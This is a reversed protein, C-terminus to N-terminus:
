NKGPKYNAGLTYVFAFGRDLSCVYNRKEKKRFNLHWLTESIQMEPLVFKGGGNRRKIMEGRRTPTTPFNTKSPPNNLRSRMKCIKVYVFEPHKLESNISKIYEYIQM